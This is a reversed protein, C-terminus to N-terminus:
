RKLLIVALVLRALTNILCLILFNHDGLELAAKQHGGFQM